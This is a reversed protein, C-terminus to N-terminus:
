FLGKCKVTNDFQQLQISHLSCETLSALTWINISLAWIDIALILKELTGETKLAGTNMAALFALNQTMCFYWCIDILNLIHFNIANAMKQHSNNVSNLSPQKQIGSCFHLFHKVIWVNQTYEFCLAVSKHSWHGWHESKHSVLYSILVM